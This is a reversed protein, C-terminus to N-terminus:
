SVDDEGTSGARAPRPVGVEEHGSGAGLLGLKARTQQERFEVRARRVILRDVTANLRRLQVLPVTWAGIHLAGRSTLGLQSLTPGVCALLTCVDQWAATSLDRLALAELQEKRCLLWKLLHGPSDHGKLQVELGKWLTPSKTAASWAKCVAGARAREQHSLHALIRLLCEEPLSAAPVRGEM